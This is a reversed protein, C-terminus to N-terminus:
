RHYKEYLLTENFFFVRWSMQHFMLKKFTCQVTLVRLTFARLTGCSLSTTIHKTKSINAIPLQYANVNLVFSGKRTGIISDFGAYHNIKSFRLVCYVVVSRWLLQTIKIPLAWRDLLWSFFIQLTLVNGIVTLQHRM